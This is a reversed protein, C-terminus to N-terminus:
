ARAKLKSFLAIGFAVMIIQSFAWFMTSFDKVSKGFGSLFEHKHLFAFSGQEYQAGGESVKSLGASGTEIFYHKNGSTVEWVPLLKDAFGYGATFHTIMASTDPVKGIGFDAALARAYRGDGNPLVTYNTADVYVVQDAIVQQEKMLDKSGRGRGSDITARWYVMDDIKVLQINTVPTGIARFVRSLDSGISASFLARKIPMSGVDKSLKAVAHFCGSFSFMLTFLSVVIATYRHNRRARNMNGNSSRSSFFIVIGLVSTMFAVGSFLIEMLIRGTGLFSLWGWTHITGFIGSLLQRSRNTAFAFRSQRTDVYIVIGDDRDFSVKYVPLLRNIAAYDDDFSTVYDVSTVTADRPHTADMMAAHDHHADEHMLQKRGAALFQHAIYEAYATDGRLLTAGNKASIYQLNRDNLQVQYFLATDIYVLRVQVFSKIAHSMLAQQLPVVVDISDITRENLQQSSIEPRISTMLPHLFGSGAWLVVPLAIIVSLTRHLKYLQKSIM